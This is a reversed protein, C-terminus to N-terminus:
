QGRIIDVPDINEAKKAPLYGAFFTSTLAFVMGIIYFMPDYNIPYTSITPLAETVFPTNDILVSVGFGLALGLLGGIFGILFAQSLFVWKVDQGSFGTAKLIAIDNMKEYILRCV